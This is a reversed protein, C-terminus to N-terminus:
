DAPGARGRGAPRRAPWPAWRGGPLTALRREALTRRQPDLESTRRQQSSRERGDADWWTFGCWRTGVQESLRGALVGLFTWELAEVLADASEDCADCGCSPFAEAALMGARLTVSPYPELLVTLPAADAAAPTLVIRGPTAREVRAEYEAAGHAVLAQAVTHLVGFREPFSDVSYASEPPGSEPDWRDGFDIVTGDPGRFERQPLWPRVYAGM